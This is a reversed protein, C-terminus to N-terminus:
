FLPNTRIAESGGKLNEVQSLGDTINEIPLEAGALECVPPLLDVASMISTKDFRGVYVKGPWIVSFPVGIGGKLM